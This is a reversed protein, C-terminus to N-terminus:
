KGVDTTKEKIPWNISKLIEDNHRGWPLVELRLRLPQFDKPLKIDGELSQFYTFRYNIEKVSKETLDSITLKTSVGHLMGEVSLNVRGYAVKDNKLVQTLIIKYRYGKPHGNSELKVSQM